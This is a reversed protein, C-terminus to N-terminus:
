EARLAIIPNTRVARLAPFLCAAFGTLGLGLVALVLVLPDLTTVGTLLNALLRGTALTLLLGAALGAGIALGAYRLIWGLISASDAGLAMRVGIEPIRQTVTYSM